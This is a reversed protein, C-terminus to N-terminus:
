NSIYSKYVEKIKHAIIESSLNLEILKERGDSYQNDNRFHIATIMKDALDNALFKAIYNGKTDQFLWEVDGVKTAVVPANCAMAEKVINPSGEYKSPLVLVDAANLYIPILENDIDVLDYVIVPDNFQTNLLEVAEELLEFNKEPRKPNSGFLIIKKDIAWGLEKRCVEKNLPSFKDLNVGNPIILAEEVGINDQMEKSKVIIIKWFLKKNIKIITNWFWSKRADSGMLSVIKPKSTFTMSSIIGCFLYHAHVIDHKKIEGRLKLINSLYGKLGKGYITFHTVEVGNIQLSKSQNEIIPSIGKKTNGSSVFLVKM